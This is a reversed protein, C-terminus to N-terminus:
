YVPTTNLFTTTHLAQMVAWQNQENHSNWFSWYWSLASLYIQTTVSQILVCTKNWSCFVCQQYHARKWQRNVCTRAFGTGELECRVGGAIDCGRHLWGYDYIYCDALNTENGHCDYADIVIPAKLEPYEKTFFSSSSLSHPLVTPMFFLIIMFSQELYSM